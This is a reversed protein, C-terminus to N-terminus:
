QRSGRSREAARVFGLTFRQKWWDRVLNSCFMRSGDGFQQLYGDHELVGIVTRLSELPDAGDVAHDRALAVAAEETLRGTIAAESLLDVALPILDTGIVRLLREEYDALEAHGRSGLMHRDYVRDVDGITVADVSRRCLDDHLLGFFMQVHHPICLGLRELMRSRADPGLALRYSGALAALFRGATDQDWPELHFPRLETITHSLGVARLVPELGISGCIVFRIRGRYRGVSLRLWSLFHDARQRGEGTAGGGDSRLMRSIMIPLEDLCLVVPLDVAALEALLRDGKSQWDGSVGERMEIRIRDIGLTDIRDAAKEFYRAFVEKTRSWLKRHERTGAALEVIVEEPTSCGQVDVFLGYDRGRQDLRRIIERLLSTKGVRRPAVLLLNEEDDLLSQMRELESVRDFFDSGSVWNGVQNRM